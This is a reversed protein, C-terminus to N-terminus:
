NTNWSKKNLNGKGGKRDMRKKNKLLVKEGVKIKNPVQHRRNYDRRQKEQASCINEGAAQYINARMSIATTLVADFTEKDFPQKSENGEICFLSYKVDIPLTPEQNYILFFPSFKTSNYKSVWHAFSIEEIINPWDCPNRNLVKVLSDKITRNQRECLGNSQPHYVSTICQETGIM